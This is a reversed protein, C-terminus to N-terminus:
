AIPKRGHKIFVENLGEIILDQQTRDIDAALRKLERVVAPDVYAILTKKGNRAGWGTSPTETPAKPTRTKSSRKTPTPKPTESESGMVERCGVPSGAYAPPNQRNARM